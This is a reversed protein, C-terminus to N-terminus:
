TNLLNREAYTLTKDFIEVMERIEDETITLPPHINLRAGSCRMYLGNDVMFRTLDRGVQKGGLPEKTGDGKVLEVEALLGVARVDGVTAHEKLTELQSRLFPGLSASREVLREREIIELNTLAAISVVPHSSLTHSQILTNDPDGLFREFVQDTAVVAGIPQYGSGLTKGLVMLDPELDYHDGGFWTGTRGFATVVEDVILLIDHRACIEKVVDWYETPSVLAGKPIPEVLIAAISDPDEYEITAEISRACGLNCTGTCFLCRYPNAEPVMVGMPLSPEFILSRIAPDGSVSMAGWTYGHHSYNRYLVKFKKPKGNQAHYQRVIKLAAEIAESGSLTYFSRSLNGPTLDALKKSLKATPANTFPVTGSGSFELDLMQRYVAEAIERRGHGVLCCHSGGTADLYRNGDSDIVYCGEGKVAVGLGTPDDRGTFQSHSSWVHDKAQGILENATQENM